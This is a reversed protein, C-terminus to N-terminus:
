EIRKGIKDFMTQNASMTDQTAKVSQDIITSIIAELFLSRLQDITMARNKNVSLLGEPTVTLTVVLTKQNKIDAMEEAISKEKKAQKESM